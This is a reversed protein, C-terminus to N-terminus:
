GWNTLLVSLDLVNVKSDNNLDGKKGASCDGAIRKVDGQLEGSQCTPCANTHINVWTGPRGTAPQYRVENREAATLETPTFTNAITMQTLWQVPQITGVPPDNKVIIGKMPAASSTYHLHANYPNGLLGTVFTDPATTKPTAKYMGAFTGSTEPNCALDFTYKGTGTSGTGAVPTLNASYTEYAGIIPPTSSSPSPSPLPTQDPVYTDNYVIWSPIGAPTIDKDIMDNTLTPNHQSERFIYHATPVNIFEVPICDLGASSCVGAPRYSGYRDM